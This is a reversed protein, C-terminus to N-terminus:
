CLLSGVQGRASHRSLLHPPLVRLSLRDTKVDSSQPEFSGCGRERLGLLLILAAFRLRETSRAM